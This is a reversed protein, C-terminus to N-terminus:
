SHSSGNASATQLHRRTQGAESEDREEAPPVPPQEESVQTPEQHCPQDAEPRPGGLVGKGVQLLVSRVPHQGDKEVGYVRLFSHTRCSPDPFYRLEVFKTDLSKLADSLSEWRVLFVTDNFSGDALDTEVVTPEDGEHHLFQKRSALPIVDRSQLTSEGPTSLYLMSAGGDSSLRLELSKQGNSLLAGLTKLGNLLSKCDTRIVEYDAEDLYLLRSSFPREEIPVVLTHGATPCRFTGVTGAAEIEVNGILARLFASVVEAYSQKLSLSVPPSSLGTVFGFASSSGTIVEGGVEWSVVAKGTGPNEADIYPALFALARALPDAQTTWKTGTFEPLPPYSALSGEPKIRLVREPGSPQALAERTLLVNTKQSLTLVNADHRVEILPGGSCNNVVANVQVAPVLIDFQEGDTGNLEVSWDLHVDNDTTLLRLREPTAVLRHVTSWYLNRDGPEKVDKIRSTLKTAANLDSSKIRLPM